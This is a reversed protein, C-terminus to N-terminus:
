KKAFMKVYDGPTLIWKPHVFDIVEKTFFHRKDFTLIAAAPSQIAAALIPADKGHIIQECAKVYEPTSPSVVVLRAKEVLSDLRAIASSPLKLAVNKKAEGLVDTSIYGLDKGERCWGLILASAGQLSAVAAVLASSDFFVSNM